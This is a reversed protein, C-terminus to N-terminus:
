FPIAANFAAEEEPTLKSFMEDPVHPVDEDQGPERPPATEPRLPLRPASVVLPPSKVAAHLRELDRDDLSLLSRGAFGLRVAFAKLDIGLAHAGRLEDLM